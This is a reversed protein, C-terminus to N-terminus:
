RIIRVPDCRSHASDNTYPLFLKSATPRDSAAISCGAAVVSDLQNLVRLCGYFERVKDGM